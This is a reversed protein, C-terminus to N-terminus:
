RGEAKAIAARARNGIIFFAEIPAHGGLGENSPCMSSLRKLIELMEPAALILATNAVQEEEYRGVWREMKAIPLGSQSYLRNGENIHWPGPTHM